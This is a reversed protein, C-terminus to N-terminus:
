FVDVFDFEVIIRRYEGGVKDLVQIHYEYETDMDSLSSIVKELEYRVGAARIFALQENTTIGTQGTVTLSFLEKGYVPTNIHNGYISDYPINGNIRLKDAMGTIRVKVKKGPKVYQAFDNDFAKDIIKIMSIAAGSEDARYKGPAFDEVASFEADVNYSFDVRYNLINKGEANVSSYAKTNVSIETHDSILKGKKATTMVEEKINELKLADMNSLQVVDLPIFSADNKMYSLSKRERNDFVALSGTDMNYVELYVLEFTDEATLGYRANRFDLKNVDTFDNVEGEPVSLYISPMTNFDLVLTNTEENFGGLSVTSMELLNGAMETAIEQELLLMQKQRSDENVRLSYEQMTEGEMRKMWDSMRSDMEDSLLTTYNPKLGGLFHYNVASATNYMLYVNDEKDKVFLIDTIGGEANRIFDRDDNDYRNILVISKDNMIVALYKNDPHFDCDAATGMSDFESIRHFTRTDYLQVIGNSTCTMMYESGASFVVSSIDSMSQTEYRLMGNEINYVRLEEKSIVSLFYNNDSIAMKEAVFPLVFKSKVFYQETDYLYITGDDCGVAFSKSDPSYCIAKPKSIGLDFDHLVVDQYWLDYIKLYFAADKQSLVAYSSGAPNVKFSLINGKSKNLKSQRLNYVHRDNFYYGTFAYKDLEMPKVEQPFSYNRGVNQANAEYFPIYFHVSLLASICFIRIFRAAM